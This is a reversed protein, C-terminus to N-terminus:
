TTPPPTAPPPPPPTMFLGPHDKRLWALIRERFGIVQELLEQAEKDSAQKPREYTIKNRKSRARDFERSAKAEQPVLIPLVKFLTEHHGQGRTRYGSARVAAASLALAAGYAFVYRADCSLGGARARQADELEQHAMELLGQIDAPIPRAKVLRKAKLFRDLTM